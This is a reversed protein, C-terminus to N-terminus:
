SSGNFKGPKIRGKKGNRKERIVLCKVEPRGPSPSGRRLTGHGSGTEKSDQGQHAGTKKASLKGRADQPKKKEGSDGQEGIQERGGNTTRVM